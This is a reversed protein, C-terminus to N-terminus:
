ARLEAKFANLMRQVSAHSIGIRDAVHRTSPAVGDFEALDLWTAVVRVVDQRDADAFVRMLRAVDAAAASEDFLAVIREDDRAIDHAREDFEVTSPRRQKRKVLDLALHDAVVRLWAGAPREPDLRGQEVASVLRMVADAAVEDVDERSLARRSLWVRLVGLLAEFEERSLRGGARVQEVLADVLDPKNATM